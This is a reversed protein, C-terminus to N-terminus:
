MMTIVPKKGLMFTVRLKVIGAVAQGRLMAPRYNWKKATRVAENDLADSKSRKIITVKGATGAPTVAVSLHVEGELGEELALSPYGPQPGSVAGAGYTPGTPLSGGGGIGAGFGRGPRGAHDGGPGVPGSGTGPPFGGAGHDLGGGPIFPANPGDGAGAGDGRAALGGGDGPRLASSTGVPGSTLAGGTGGGYRTSATKHGLQGHGNGGVGGGPRGTWFGRGGRMAGGPLPPMDGASGDGTLVGLPSSSDTAAGAYGSGRGPLNSTVEPRLVSADGVPGDAATGARNSSFGPTRRNANMSGAGFHVRDNGGTTPSPFSPLVGIDHGPPSIGPRPTSIPGRPAAEGSTSPVFGDPTLPVAQRIFPSPPLAPVRRASRPVSAVHTVPVPRPRLRPTIIRELKPEPEPPSPKPPKAAPPIPAMAVAVLDYDEEPPTMIPVRQMALALVVHLALSVPLWIRMIDIGMNRRASAVETAYAAEKRRQCWGAHFLEPWHLAHCIFHHSRTVHSFKKEDSDDSLTSFVRTRCPHRM